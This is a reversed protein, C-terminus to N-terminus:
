VIKLKKRKYLIYGLVGALSVCLLAIFLLSNLDLYALITFQATAANGAADFVQLQYMGAESLKGDSPFDVASGDRTLAAATVDELGGIQVASHFRGNKDLKGDLTLEPPTRDVITSLHYHISTDSCVYEIEYLGEDEMGIYNREYYADEGDLTADLIYFGTPMIYGGALNTTAGVITFSFLTVMADVDKVTVTYSGADRIASLDVEEPTTGNRSLSLEVGDDATVRVPESVVMGDAVNARVEYVGSGTPYVFSGSARDYYMSDSIQVRTASSSSTVAEGTVTDVTGSYYPDVDAFAPACLAIMFVCPLAAICLASSILKGFRVRM